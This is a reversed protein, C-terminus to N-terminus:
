SLAERERGPLAPPRRFYQDIKGIPKLLAALLGGSLGNMKWSRRVELAARLINTTSRNSVGGLTMRVLVRDIHVSRVSYRRLLRLMLEYDAAIALSTDFAGYRLYVERRVFFSPHPPMWGLRWKLPSSPGTKWYRVTRGRSDEYVINGHCVDAKGRGFADLVGALVGSDAYRDDANLIGVIDGTAREIGKNMADYIGSDPESVLLDISGRRRELVDLTGDTSGGDIVITELDCDLDQNLVSDLARGVRSDNLVPTVISFKM